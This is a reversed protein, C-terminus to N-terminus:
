WKRTFINKVKNPLPKLGEKTLKHGLVKVSQKCLETKDPRTRLCAEKLLTMVEDVHKIHQEVTKSYIFVDDLYVVVSTWLHPALIEEMMAQFTAGGNMLGM